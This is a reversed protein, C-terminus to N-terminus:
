KNAYLHDRPSWGVRPRDSFFCSAIWKTGATIRKSEHITSWNTAEDYGQEFYLFSGVKPDITVNHKPFCTEGGVFDTNLYFIGTGVRDGGHKYYNIKRPDYPYDHHYALFQGTKYNYVDIAEIHSYPIRAARVIATALIDYDYPDVGLSIGRNEVQETVQAHSEVRSQYGSNPNMGTTSHKAILHKCFDASLLNDFVSIRPFELLKHEELHLVNINIATLGSDTQVRDFEVRQLEFMTKLDNNINIKEAYVNASDSDSIIFGYGKADNYWKVVGTEQPKNQM